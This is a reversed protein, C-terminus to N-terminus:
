VNKSGRVKELMIKGKDVYIWFAARNDLNLEKRINKPIVIQGRNDSQVIKAETM